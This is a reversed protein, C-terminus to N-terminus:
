VAAGLWPCVNSSGPVKCSHRGGLSLALMVPLWASLMGTKGCKPQTSAFHLCRLSFASRAEGLHTDFSHLGGALSACRRSPCAGPLLPESDGATASAADPRSAMTQLPSRHRLVPRTNRPQLYELNHAGSDIHRLQARAQAPSSIHRCCHSRRFCALAAVLRCTCTETWSAREGTPRIQRRGKLLYRGIPLFSTAKLRRRLM